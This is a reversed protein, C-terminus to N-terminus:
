VLTPLVTTGDFWLNRDPGTTPMDLTLGTLLRVAVGKNTGTLSHGLTMDNWFTSRKIFGCSGSLNTNSYNIQVGGGSFWCHDVEHLLQGGGALTGMICSWSGVNSSMKSIGQFSQDARTFLTMASTRWSDMQAQAVIYPASYPNTESGSGPTGTGVWISPWSGFFCNTWKMNPMATQSSDNHTAVDSPHVIGTTGARWWGHDGLWSDNVVGGTVLPAGGTNANNVCDVYGTFICRNVVFNRGNIGNFIRQARNHFECDNFTVLTFSGNLLRVHDGQSSGNATLVSRCNNFTANGRVDLVTNGFDYNDYTGANITTLGGQVAGPYPTLAVGPINGVNKSGSFDITLEFQPMTVGNVFDAGSLTTRGFAVWDRSPHRRHYRLQEIPTPM